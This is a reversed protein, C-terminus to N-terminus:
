DRHIQLEIFVEFFWMVPMGIVRVAHVEMSFAIHSQSWVSLWLINLTKTKAETGPETGFWHWQRVENCKLKQKKKLEKDTQNMECDSLM